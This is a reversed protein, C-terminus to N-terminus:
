KVGRWWFSNQHDSLKVIEGIRITYKKNSVSNVFKGGLFNPSSLIKEGSTLTLFLYHRYGFVPVVLALLIVITWIMKKFKFVTLM